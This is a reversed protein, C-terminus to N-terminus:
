GELLSAERWLREVLAVMASQDPRTCVHLSRAPLTQCEQAVAVSMCGVYLSATGHFGAAFLAASRPSFLPVIVPATGSLAAHAAASLPREAQDYIVAEGTPWGARSLTAAVDGRSHTGRLHLLRAGVPLQARVLALLAQADGDASRARFGAAGAAEATARGVCLAPLGPPVEARAAVQAVAEQSTFLVADYEALAPMQGCAVPAILPSVLPKVGDRVADPLAALFRASGAEPRTLLLIPRPPITTSM